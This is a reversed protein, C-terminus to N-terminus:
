DRIHSQVFPAFRGHPFESQYTHALRVSRAVDGRADAAELALVLAEERLAGHRNAALYTDLLATARRADHDRRLAILADLVQTREQAPSSAPLAVHHPRPRDLERTEPVVPAATPAAPEVAPPQAEALTRVSRARDHHVAAPAPASAPTSRLHEVQRLIWRAPWRGGIAAAATAAFVMVGVGLAFARLMGPRGRSPAASPVQQLAAWVRRKMEPQPPPPQVSRLLDIGRESVPDFASEDRLRNM